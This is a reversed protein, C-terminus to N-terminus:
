AAQRCLCAAIPGGMVLPGHAYYSGWAAGRDPLRSPNAAALVIPELRLRGFANRLERTLTFVVWRYGAEYLERGLAPILERSMGLGAALNGVEVVHERPVARGAVRGLLTEVPVDLYHELFLKAGAAPTYGAAALWRGAEERVGLLHACFHQVQAGYALWFREAIFRELSLRGAGAPQEFFSTSIAPQM